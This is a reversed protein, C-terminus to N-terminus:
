PLITNRVIDPLSFALLGVILGVVGWIMADRATKIKGADGNATIFTLGAILFMLIAIGIFIPWVFALIAVIVPWPTTAAIPPLQPPNAPNIPAALSVLPLLMLGASAFLSVIKKNMYKQKGPCLAM